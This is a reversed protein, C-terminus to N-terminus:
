NAELQRSFMGTTPDDALVHSEFGLTHMLDFMKANLALVLGEMRKLGRARAHQLRRLV